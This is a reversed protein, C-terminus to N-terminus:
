NIINGPARKLWSAYKDATLPWESWWRASFRYAVDDSLRYNRMLVNIRKCGKINYIYNPSRWGLIREIGETIIGSYGMGEVMKAIENSFLAETNRFVKPEVGILSKLKKRHLEVQEYFEKKEPDSFLSSLSHFHTENLFDVSGTDALQKFTDLLDPRYRECQELFVGTISYSVKFKGRHKGILELLLKNTPMYCKDTVKNFVKENLKDDFYLDHLKGKKESLFSYHKLRAPQHVQFYICLSPM